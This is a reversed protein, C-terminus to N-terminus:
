EDDQFYSLDAEWGDIQGAGDIELIVYDGYGNGKPCLMSPVYGDRKAVVEGASDILSYIGGDAVKYHVEAVTGEPWNAIRGTSLDIDLRWGDGSRLPILNGDDDDIVGNIKGDEWYRVGIDARLTVVEFDTPKNMTFKM